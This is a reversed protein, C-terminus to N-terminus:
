SITLGYSASNDQCHRLVVGEAAAKAHRLEAYVGLVRFGDSSDNSHTADIAMWADGLKVIHALHRESDCLALVSASEEWGIKSCMLIGHDLVFASMRRM